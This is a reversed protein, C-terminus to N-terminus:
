GNGLNKGFRYKTSRAVYRASVIVYWNAEGGAEALYRCIFYIFFM